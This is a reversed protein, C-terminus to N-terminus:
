VRRPEDARSDDTSRGYEAHNLDDTAATTWTSRRELMTHYAACVADACDKSGHVPHDIKDKTEDFELEIIEDTLLDDEPLLIRTDYMADRFNKYPASTRDVSVQASKIGDKRWAQISERSDFGDYTVARIPYGYKTKLHKIFARIESIEIESNADPTITCAMEVVAIPMLESLNNKRGVTVMGEFRIMAIGCKDNNRSLDIHVYRPRSPNMCYVGQKVQPMGHDGLIVHDRVLISSLGMEKGADVCEFVKYRMKIFPSLANHSIGLVDRLTDYPKSLFDDRYEIPVEEIWAGEPADENDDLARTDHQMDNAIMLRFKLGCFRDQPVVDYQKRDYVYTSRINNKKVFAKRKDTFDGKYRTSSSPFIIGIVPGPRTFRGKRRTTMRHHVQTAQDYMGARGTSVESKKSRLVVAMFNIEDIMGGIVAEGLIADEDGGARIVRINKDKFNMESEILKDMPFYKQFYPMGEIMKRLPAYVVKNVVNPKAGMIPFVISTTSPLGYWAQPNKLCSLLYVHYAISIMSITSKATGTAGCMISENYAGGEYGKWWNCNIEILAERVSRWLTIDTAGLFEPSDLFTEIDVPIRELTGLFEFLTRDQRRVVNEVATKYMEAFMANKIGGAMTDVASLFARERQTVPKHPTREIRRSTQM